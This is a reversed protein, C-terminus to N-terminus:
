RHWLERTALRAGETLAAFKLWAVSPHTDNFRLASAAFGCDAGAIVNERGVIKAFRIIREAVLEPHEVLNTTHSIVGPILIKGDPLKTREFVHYEHEHRPNAAEFSYAGANIKLMIDVIDKLAMEHIRPGVDISYCTHFRIKEPPIGRISDNIAEVREEAWKRCDEVSLEPHMMYYSILRPDDLQLIFGADVIAKYEARMADSVAQEYDEPTRYYENGFTSAIYSSTIAPVFVDEHPQGKIAAKLNDIDTQVAEQGRYSVPGTCTDVNHGRSGSRGGFPEAIRESWAYYDPFAVYERGASRPRMEKGKVPPKREFGSLRAIVYGFFGAKGQEGDNVIDIGAEVQKRVVHTVAERVLRALEERNYPQGDERLRLLPILSDSRALSGVHTTLIRESSHKM